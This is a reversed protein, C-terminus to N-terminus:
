ASQMPLRAAVLTGKGPISELHFLGGARAARERMQMLGVRGRARAAELAQDVEFGRGDDRVQLTAWQPEFVLNIWVNTAQAHKRINNLAEQVLRFLASQTKPSAHAAEGEIQLHMKLDNAAGFDLVFKELARTFGLTEIEVPRLAFITQRVERMDRRLTADLKALEAELDIPKGRRLHERLIQVQMLMFNIDQALGDHIERAMRAREETIAKEESWAYLQLNRVILAASSCLVSLLSLHRPGFARPERHTLVIAGEVHAGITLPAAMWSGFTSSADALNSELLPRNAQIARRAYEVPAGSGVEIWVTLDLADAVSPHSARCVFLAGNQAGCAELIQRMLRELVQHGSVEDRLTTDMERFAIVERARLRHSEIVAAATHALTRLMGLRDPRLRAPSPLELELLGFKRDGRVLPLQLRDAHQVHRGNMWDTSDFPPPQLFSAPEVDFGWTKYLTLQGSLEEVLWLAARRANAVRVSAEVVITAAEELDLAAALRQSTESLQRTMEILRAQDIAVSAQGALVTALEMDSQTFPPSGHRRSLNLVGIVDGRARLPLVLASNLEPKGLAEQVTNPLPLGEAIILPEGREAAYRAISRADTPGPNELIEPALGDAAVITLEHTEPDLLMLSATEARTDRRAITVVQQLLEGLEHTGMFSSSLEYLPVLARLRANERRLNEQELAAVIATILQEVPFPKILLGSFGARLAEMSIEWSSYGTMAIGALDPQFERIESFLQIGNRDPLYIDTLLLDFKQARALALAREATAATQVVYGLEALAKGIELRLADDDDLILIRENPM